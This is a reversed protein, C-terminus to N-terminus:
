LSQILPEAAMFLSITGSQHWHSIVTSIYGTHPVWHWIDAHLNWETVQEIMGVMLRSFPGGESVSVRHRFRNNPRAQSTKALFIRLNTTSNIPTKHVTRFSENQLIYSLNMFGCTTFSDDLQKAKQNLSMKIWLSYELIKRENFTFGSSYTHWYLQKPTTKCHFILHLPFPFTTSTVIINIQKNVNNCTGTKLYHACFLMFM